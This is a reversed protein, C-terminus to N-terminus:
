VRHRMERDSVVAPDWVHCSSPIEEVPIPRALTMENKLEQAPRKMMWTKPVEPKECDKKNTKKKKKPKKKKKEVEISTPDEPVDFTLAKAQEEANAEGDEAESDTETEWGPAPLWLEQWIDCDFGWFINPADENAVHQIPAVPDEKIPDVAVLPKSDRKESIPDEVEAEDASSM